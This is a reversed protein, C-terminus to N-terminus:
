CKGGKRMAIMTGKTKGRQTIGDAAKRYVSGGEAYKSAKGGKKMGMPMGMPAAAAPAPAMMARGAAGKKMLARGMKDAMKSGKM